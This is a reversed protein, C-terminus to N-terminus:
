FDGFIRRVTYRDIWGWSSDRAQAAARVAAKGAEHAASRTPYFDGDCDAARREGAAYYSVIFAQERM